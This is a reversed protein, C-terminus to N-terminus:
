VSSCAHLAPYCGHLSGWDSHTGAPLPVGSIHADGGECSTRVEYFAKSQEIEELVAGGAAENIICYRDPDIARLSCPLVARSLFPSNKFLPCPLHLRSTAQMVRSPPVRVALHANVCGLSTYPAQSILVHVCRGCSKPVLVERVSVAM